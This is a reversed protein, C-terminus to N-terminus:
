LNPKNLTRSRSEAAEHIEHEVEVIAQAIVGAAQLAEDGYGGDIRKQAKEFDEYLWNKIDELTKKSM